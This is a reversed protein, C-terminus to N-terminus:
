NRRTSKWHARPTGSNRNQTEIRKLEKELEQIHREDQEVRRREAAESGKLTEIEQRFQVLDRTDGGDEAAVGISPAILFILAVAIMTAGGRRGFALGPGETFDRIPSPWQESGV